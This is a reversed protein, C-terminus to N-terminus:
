YNINFSNLNIYIYTLNFMELLIRSIINIKILRSDKVIHPYM